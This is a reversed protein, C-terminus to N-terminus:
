FTLRSPHNKEGQNPKKYLTFILIRQLYISHRDHIEQIEIIIM